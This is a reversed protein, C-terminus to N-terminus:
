RLKYEIPVSIRVPKAPKPFEASSTEILKKAANDLFEFGSSQTITIQSVERDTGLTFSVMVEGQQNLRLANKPYKLREALIARIQGLNEDAYNEEVKPPLSKQTVIPLAEPTKATIPLVSPESFVPSPMMAPKDATVASTIVSTLKPKPIAIPEQKQIIPPSPPSLPHAPASEPSQVLVKLKIKEGSVPVTKYVVGIGGVLLAILTLHIGVSLLLPNATRM